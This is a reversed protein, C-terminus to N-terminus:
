SFAIYTKITNLLREKTKWKSLLLQPIDITTTKIAVTPSSFRPTVDIWSETETSYLTINSMDTIIHVEEAWIELPKVIGKDLVLTDSKVYLCDPCASLLHFDYPELSETCAYTNKKADFVLHVNGNYKNQLLYTITIGEAECKFNRGTNEDLLQLHVNKGCM